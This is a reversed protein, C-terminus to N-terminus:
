VIIENGNFKYLSIYNNTYIDWEIVHTSNKILHEYSLVALHNSFNWVKDYVGDYDITIYTDTNNTSKWQGTTSNYAYVQWLYGHLSDYAVYGAMYDANISSCASTNILTVGSGSSGDSTGGFSSYAGGSTCNMTWIRKWYKTPYNAPNQFPYCSTCSWDYVSTLTNTRFDYNYVHSEGTNIAFSNIGNSTYTYHIVDYPVSTTPNISILEEYIPNTLIVNALSYTEFADESRYLLLQSTSNKYVLLTCNLGDSMCDMRPAIYDSGLLKKGNDYVASWDLEQASVSPSVALLLLCLMGVMLCTVKM